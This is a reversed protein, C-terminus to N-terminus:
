RVATPSSELQSDSASYQFTAADTGPCSDVVHLTTGFTSFNSTYRREVGGIVGAEQMTVGSIM